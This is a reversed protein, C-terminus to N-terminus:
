LSASLVQEIPVGKEVEDLISLKKQVAKRFRDTESHMGTFSEKARVYHKRLKILVQEDVDPVLGVLDIFLTFSRRVLLCIETDANKLQKESASTAISRRNEIASALYELTSYVTDGMKPDLTKPV